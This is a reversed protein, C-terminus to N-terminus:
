TSLLKGFIRMLDREIFFLLKGEDYKVDILQKSDRMFGALFQTAKNTM